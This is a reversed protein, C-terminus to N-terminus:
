VHRWTSYKNVENLFPPLIDKKDTSKEVNLTFHSFEGKGGKVGRGCALNINLNSTEVRNAHLLFTAASM